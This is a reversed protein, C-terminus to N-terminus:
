IDLDLGVEDAMKGIEKDTIGFMGDHNMIDKVSTALEKTNDSNLLWIEDGSEFMAKASSKSVPNMAEDTFGFSKLLSQEVEKITAADKVFSQAKLELESYGQEGLQDIAAKQFAFLMSSLTENNFALQEFAIKWSDVTNDKLAAERIESIDQQTYLAM